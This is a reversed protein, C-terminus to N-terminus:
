RSVNDLCAVVRATNDIMFEDTVSHDKMRINSRSWTSPWLDNAEESIRRSLLSYLIDRSWIVEMSLINHVFHMGNVYLKSHFISSLCCSGLDPPIVCVM